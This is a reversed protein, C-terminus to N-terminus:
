SCIHLNNYVYNLTEGNFIFYVFLAIRRIKDLLHMLIQTHIIFNHHPRNIIWMADITYTQSPQTAYILSFFDIFSQRAGLIVSRTNQPTKKKM